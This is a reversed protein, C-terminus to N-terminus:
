PSSGASCPALILFEDRTFILPQRDIHPARARANFEIGGRGDLLETSSRQPPSGGCECRQSQSAVADGRDFRKTDEGREGQNHSHPKSCDASGMTTASVWVLPYTRGDSELSQADCGCFADKRDHRFSRWQWVSYRCLQSLPIMVMM